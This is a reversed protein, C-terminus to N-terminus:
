CDPDIFLYKVGRIKRSKKLDRLLIMAPRALHEGTAADYLVYERPVTVGLEKAEQACTRLYDALRNNQSQEELSQRAYAAWWESENLDCGMVGFGEEYNASKAAAEIQRDIEKSSLPGSGTM